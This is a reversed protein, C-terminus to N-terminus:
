KTKSILYNVFASCSILMYKADDFDPENTNEIMAHRIGTEKSNTYAYIKEFGGKLQSNIVIGNKELKELAKGLTNERTLIRCCAEVASISEKISNRYDPSKKDSLKRLSDTIHLQVSEYKTEEINVAKEVAEIEIETIIKTITQGVLRYASCEKELYFNIKQIYRKQNAKDASLFRLTVVFEIFDYIEYWKLKYFLQRLNNFRQTNQFSAFALSDDIELPLKFFDAMIEDYVDNLHYYLTKYTVNWLSNRLDTDISEIQFEKKIEKYGNRQSFNM